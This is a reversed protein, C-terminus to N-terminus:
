IFYCLHISINNTMDELLAIEFVMQWSYQFYKEGTGSSTERNTFATISCKPVAKVVNGTSSLLLSHAKLSTLWCFHHDIVYSLQSEVVNM